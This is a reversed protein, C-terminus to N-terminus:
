GFGRAQRARNAPRDQGADTIGEIQDTLGGEDQIPQAKYQVCIGQRIPQEVVVHAHAGASKGDLVLLAPGVEFCEGQPKM